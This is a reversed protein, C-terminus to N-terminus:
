ANHLHEDYTSGSRINFTDRLERPSKGKIMNAVAQCGIDLLGPIHLYNAAVIISYLMELDVDMFELDWGAIRTPGKLPLVDRDQLDDPDDKHHECWEVVKTLVNGDM